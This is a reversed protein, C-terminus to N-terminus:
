TVKPEFNLWFRLGAKPTKHSSKQVVTDFTIALLIACVSPTVHGYPVDVFTSRLFNQVM